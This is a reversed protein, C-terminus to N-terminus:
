RRRSPDPCPGVFRCVSCRSHTNPPQKLSIATRLDRRRSTAIPGSATRRAARFRVSTRFCRFWHTRQAATRSLGHGENDFRHFLSWTM